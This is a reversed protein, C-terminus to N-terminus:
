LTEYTKICTALVFLSATTPGPMRIPLSWTTISFLTHGKNILQVKQQNSDVGIVHFGKSALCVALPLGLKGLGIVSIKSIRM